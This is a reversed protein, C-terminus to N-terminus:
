VLSLKQVILHARCSKFKPCFSHFNTLMYDLYMENSNCIKTMFFRSSGFIHMIPDRAHRLSPSDVRPFQFEAQLHMFDNLFWSMRQSITTHSHTVIRQLERNKPYASAANRRYDGLRNKQLIFNMNSYLVRLWIVTCFNTPLYQTTTSGPPNQLFTQLEGFMITGKLLATM